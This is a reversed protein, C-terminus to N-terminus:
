LKNLKQNLEYAPETVIKELVEIRKRLEAIAEQEATRAGEPSNNVFTSRDFPNTAKGGMWDILKLNYKADIFCIALLTMICFLMTFILSLADM